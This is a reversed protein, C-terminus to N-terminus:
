LPLVYFDRIHYFIHIYTFRVFMGRSAVTVNRMASSQLAGAEAYTSFVMLIAGLFIIM